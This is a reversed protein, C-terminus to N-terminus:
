MGADGFFVSFRGNFCGYAERLCCSFHTSGDFGRSVFAPIIASLFFNM